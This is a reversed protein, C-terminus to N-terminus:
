KKSRGRQRFNLSQRGLQLDTLNHRRRHPVHSAQRALNQAHVLACCRSPENLLRASRALLHM